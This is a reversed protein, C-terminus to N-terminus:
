TPKAVRACRREPSNGTPSRRTGLKPATDSFREAEATGAIAMAEGVIVPGAGKGDSSSSAWTTTECSEVDTVWFKYLPDVVVGQRCLGFPSTLTFEFCILSPEAVMPVAATSAM